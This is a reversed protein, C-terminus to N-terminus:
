SEESNSIRMNPFCQEEVDKYYKEIRELWSFFTKGAAISDGHTYISFLEITILVLSNAAHTAPLSMGWDTHGVPITESKGGAGLRFFTADASSHV